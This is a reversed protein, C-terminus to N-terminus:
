KEKHIYIYKGLAYKFYKVSIKPKGKLNVLFLWVIISILNPPSPSLFHTLVLNM